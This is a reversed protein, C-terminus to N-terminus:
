IHYLFLKTIAQRLDENSLDCGKECARYVDLFLRIHLKDSVAVAGILAHAKALKEDGNILAYLMLALRAMSSSPAPLQVLSKDDLGGVLEMFGDFLKNVNVGLEKFLSLREILPEPFVDILWWRLREVAAGEGKAASVAYICNRKETLNEISKCAEAVDEPKVLRFTVRLAPLYKSDIGDKFAEILEWPAVVLRGGLENDLRDKSSLLANLMLRTLVSLNKIVELVELHEELLEKIKKVREDGGTLALSVLYNGLMSPAISLYLAMLELHEENFTEEYLQRFEDVLKGGVLSGEIAEVRLAWGRNSIYNEYAGTGWDEKAVEKFLGEAEKLECNLFRYSALSNKLRSATNLIVMRVAEEDAKIFRSEVFSIFGKDRMLEQVKERLKDLEKLVENARDVVDIGLAEVMLGRVYESKLASTLAYAWAIIGLSSKFRGLKDLLDAVRSVVGGVEDDDFYIRHKKLLDAYARIAHVLPSAHGKVSDGYGDLVKNLEDLIYRVTDRDLVEISLAQALLVLYRHPAKDRLPELARLIPMIVHTLAVNQIVSPVIYLEVDADGPEVPRGMEAANAIILALGLGYFSEADYIGRDKAINLIKNVEAIAEDYRDIFAKTLVRVYNSILHWILPPIENGVLLYDDISLNNAIKCEKLADSLTKIVNEPLGEPSLVLHYGALTRGIILAAKRWCKDRFDRLTDTLNKGYNDVFYKVASGVDSVKKSVNRLIGVTGPVWPELAKGLNECGEGKGVICDLLKGIAEEIIDHQRHVLWGSLETVDMLKVVGPTLIPYGPRVLKIFPRRLAFVKVLAKTADFNEHVKFLGNIHLIIFAEAKGKVESILREVEGVSCNNRALEEGILRAILAHGSDFKAVNSALESLKEDSLACGNPKDETKSYERILEAVFETNIFGQSADLKYKELANRAWESLANYVDTPLVILITQNSDGLNKLREIKILYGITTEIDKPIRSHRPGEEYPKASEGQGQQPQTGPEEEYTETSVPDYLILLRGFYKVFKKSYNEIFTQFRSYNDENLVDVRAIFGVEYNNLSEGVTAAALTSKGIGKPGAIVVVGDSKLRDRVGNVLENFEGTKVLNHYRNEVRIRLESNEVKINPYVIGQEFDAKGAITISAADKQKLLNIWNDLENVKEELETIRRELEEVRKKLEDVEIGAIEKLAENAEDYSMGMLYAVRYVLLRGLENFDGDPKRLKELNKKLEIIGNVYSKGERKLAVQILVVIFALAAAGMLATALGAIAYKAYSTVFGELYGVSLEGWELSDEGVGLDKRLTDIVKFYSDVWDSLVRGGGEEGTDKILDVVEKVLGPPIYEVRFWKIRKDVFTGAILKLARGVDAGFVCESPEKVCKGVENSDWPILYTRHPSNGIRKKAEEIVPKPGKNGLVRKLEEDDVEVRDLLKKILPIMRKLLGIVGEPGRSVGGTKAISVGLTYEDITANIDLYNKMHNNKFFSKGSRPPGVVMFRGCNTCRRRVESVERENFGMFLDVDFDSM